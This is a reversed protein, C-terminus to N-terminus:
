PYIRSPFINEYHTPQNAATQAADQKEESGAAAFTSRAGTEPQRVQLDFAEMQAVIPFDWLLLSTFSPLSSSLFSSKTDLYQLAILNESQLGTSVVNHM